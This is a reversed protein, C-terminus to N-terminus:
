QQTAIYFTESYQTDSGYNHEGYFPIVGPDSVKAGVQYAGPTLSVSQSGHAAIQITQSMPGTFYVWLTYPTSNTIAITTGSGAITGTAQAPPMAAHPGNRISNIAQEPTQAQVTPGPSPASKVIYTETQQSNRLIYIANELPTMIYLYGTKIGAAKNHEQQKAEAAEGEKLLDDNVWISNELAFATTRFNRLEAVEAKALLEVRKIAVWENLERSIDVHDREGKQALALLVALAMADERQQKADIHTPSTASLQDLWKLFVSQTLVQNGVKIVVPDERDQPSKALTLGGWKGSQMVSPMFVFLAVGVVGLVLAKRRMKSAHKRLEPKAFRITRVLISM